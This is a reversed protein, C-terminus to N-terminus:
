FMKFKKKEKKQLWLTPFNIPFSQFYNRIKRCGEDVQFKLEKFTMTMALITFTEWWCDCLQIIEVGYAHSLPFFHLYM